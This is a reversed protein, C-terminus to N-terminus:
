GRQDFDGEATQPREWGTSARSEQPQGANEGRLRLERYHLRARPMSAMEMGLQQEVLVHARRCAEDATQALNAGADVDLDLVVEVRKGRPTVIATCRAIHQIQAVEADIREAIQATTIVAEGSNMSRVRMKQSAPPTIEIIIVTLMLLTVVAAFLSVIVKTESDNHRDLYGALDAIRGIADDPAAWALLTVLLAVFVITIASVVIVFRNLQELPGDSV